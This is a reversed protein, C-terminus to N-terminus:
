IPQLDSNNSPSSYSLSYSKTTSRLFQKTLDKSTRNVLGLGLRSYVLNSGVYGALSSVYSSDLQSTVEDQLQALTIM